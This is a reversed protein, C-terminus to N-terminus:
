MPCSHRAITKAPASEVTALMIAGSTAAGLAQQIKKKTPLLLRRLRFNWSMRWRRGSADSTHRRRREPPFIHILTAAGGAMRDGEAHPQAVALM